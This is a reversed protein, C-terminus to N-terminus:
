ELFKLEKKMIYAAFNIISLISFFVSAITYPLFKWDYQPMNSLIGILAASVGVLTLGDSLQKNMKVGELGM